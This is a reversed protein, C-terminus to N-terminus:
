LFACICIDHILKVLVALKVSRPFRFLKKGESKQAEREVTQTIAKKGHWRNPFGNLKRRDDHDRETCVDNSAIEKCKGSFSKWRKSTLITLYQILTSKYQATLVECLKLTIGSTSFNFSTYAHRSCVAKGRQPLFFDLQRRDPLVSDLQILAM